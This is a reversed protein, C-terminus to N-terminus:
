TKNRRRQGGHSYSYGEGLATPEHERMMGRPDPHYSSALELKGRSWAREGPSHTYAAAAAERAAESRPDCAADSWDGLLIAARAATLAEERLNALAAELRSQEGRAANLENKWWQVDRLSDRGTQTDYHSPSVVRDRDEPLFLANEDAVLCAERYRTQAEEHQAVSVEYQALLLKAEM